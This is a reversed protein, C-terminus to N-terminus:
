LRLIATSSHQLLSPAHQALEGDVADPSVKPEADEGPGDESALGEATGPVGLQM